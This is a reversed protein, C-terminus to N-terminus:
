RVGEIGRLVVAVIQEPDSREDSLMPHSLALTIARLMRAAAKPEVSLHEQEAEFLATLADSDMPPRHVRERHRPGVRSVLAWVDDVRRQIIETAQVLREEFAGNTDIAALARELPGTDLAAELTAAILEDKDAFARFITGEAVGAAEAIQRTTVLEGHEILLPRVAEILAARREEIPLATARGSTTATQVM